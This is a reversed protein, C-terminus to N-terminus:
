PRVVSRVLRCWRPLFERRIQAVIGRVTAAPHVFLAYTDIHAMTEDGLCGKARCQFLGLLTSWDDLDFM